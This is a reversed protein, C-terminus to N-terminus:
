YGGITNGNEDIFGNDFLYWERTGIQFPNLRKPQFLQQLIPIELNQLGMRKLGSIQQPVQVQVPTPPGIFEPSAWSGTPIVTPVTPSPTVTPFLRNWLDEQEEKQEKKEKEGAKIQIISAIDPLVGTPSEGTIPVAVLEAVIDGITAGLAPNGGSLVTGFITGGTKLVSKVMAKRRAEEALKIQEVNKTHEGIMQLEPVQLQSEIEGLAATTEGGGSTAGMSRLYNEMQRIKKKRAQSTAKLLNASEEAAIKTYSTLTKNEGFLTDLWSM